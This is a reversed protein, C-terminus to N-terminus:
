REAVFSLGDLDLDAHAQRQRRRMDTDPAAAKPAPPPTLLRRLHELLGPRRPQGASGAQAASARPKFMPPCGAGLRRAWAEVAHQAEQMSDFLELQRQAQPRDWWTLAFKGSWPGSVGAVAKGDLLAIFSLGNYRSQWRLKGSNAAPTHPEAQFGDAM